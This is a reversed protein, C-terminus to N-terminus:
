RAPWHTGSRSPHRHDFGPGSLWGPLVHLLAVGVTAAAIENCVLRIRSVDTAFVQTWRRAREDAVMAALRTTAYLGTPIALLSFLAAGFGNASDLGAFGAGAAMDAFQHNDDFFALVLAILAGILLFYAVIAAVWATIPPVARQITFGTVSGLLRTRPPRSTAVAVLGAGADRHRATVLGATAFAIPYAALM